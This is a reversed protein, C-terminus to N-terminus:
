AGSIASIIIAIMLFYSALILGKIRFRGYRDLTKQYAEDFFKSQIDIFVLFFGITLFFFFGSVQLLIEM